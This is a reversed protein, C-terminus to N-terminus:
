DKKTIGRENEIVKLSRLGVALSSSESMLAAILIVQFIEEETAGFKLAQRLHFALCHNSDNGVAGAIAFLETEKQSFVKNSGILHFLKDVSTVFDKEDKSIEKLIFPVEGYFDEIKKLTKEINLTTM